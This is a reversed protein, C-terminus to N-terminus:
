RRIYVSIVGGKLSITKQQNDSTLDSRPISEAEKSKIRLSRVAIQCLNRRTTLSPSSAAGWGQEIEKMRRKSLQNVRISGMMETRARVAADRRWSNPVILRLYYKPYVALWFGHGNVESFFDSTLDNSLIRKEAKHNDAVHVNLDSMQRLSKKKEM